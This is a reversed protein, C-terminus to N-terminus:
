QKSLRSFSFRLHPANGFKEKFFILPKNDEFGKSTPGFDVYKYDNQYAYTLVNYYGFHNPKLQRFAVNDYIYFTNIVNKSVIFTIIGSILEQDAFTRFIKIRDPFLSTIRCLENFTHTPQAGLRNQSEALMNYDAETIQDSIETRLNNKLAQRLETRTKAHLSNQLDNENRTESCLLIDATHIRFGYKMWLFYQYNACETNPSCYISAPPIVFAKDFDNELSEQIMFILKDLDDYYLNKKHILGGYSSGFPSKFIQIGDENIRMGPMFGIIENDEKVIFHHHQHKPSPFKEPLHYSLFKPTHFLGGNASKQIFEHIDPLEELSNIIHLSLKM